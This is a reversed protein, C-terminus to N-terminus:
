GELVQFVHPCGIAPRVRGRPRRAWPVISPVTRVGLGVSGDDQPCASRTTLIRGAM